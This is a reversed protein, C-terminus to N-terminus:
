LVAEFVSHWAKYSQKLVVTGLKILSEFVSHWTKYCQKLFMSGLKILTHWAPELNSVFVKVGPAFIGITLFYSFEGEHPHDDGTIV